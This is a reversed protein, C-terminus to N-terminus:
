LMTGPVGELTAYSVLWTQTLEAHDVKDDDTVIVQMDTSALTIWGIKALATRLDANTLKTEIEEAMADMKDEITQTDGSGPMRLMGVVVLSLVRDYIATVNITQRESADGDAFVMLYNWIQRSSAIRTEIVQNYTGTSPTPALLAAVAERIQQRAHSM